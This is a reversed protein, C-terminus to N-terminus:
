ILLFFYIFYFHETATLGRIIFIFVKQFGFGIVCRLLDNVGIAKQSRPLLILQVLASFLRFVSLDRFRDFIM